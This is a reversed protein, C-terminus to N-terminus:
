QLLLCHTATADAPGCALRCRAGSLYGHWCGVVWWKHIFCYFVYVKHLCKSLRPKIRTAERTLNLDVSSLSKIKTATRCNTSILYEKECWYHREIVHKFLAKLIDATVVTKIKASCASLTRPECLTILFHEQFFSSALRTLMNFCIWRLFSALVGYWGIHWTIWYHGCNQWM